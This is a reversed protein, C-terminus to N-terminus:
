SMVGKWNYYASRYGFKKNVKYMSNCESCKVTVYKNSNIFENYIDYELPDEGIIEILDMAALDRPADSQGFTSCICKKSQEDVYVIKKRDDISLSGVYVVYEEPHDPYEVICNDNVDPKGESKKFMLCEQDFYRTLVAPMGNYIVQVRM